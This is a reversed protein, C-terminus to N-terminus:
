SIVDVPPSPLTKEENLFKDIAWVLDPSMGQSSYRPESRFMLMMDDFMSLRASMLENQRRLSKIENSADQLLSFEKRLEQM